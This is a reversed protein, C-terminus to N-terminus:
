RILHLLIIIVGLLIILIGLVWRHFSSHSDKTSGKKIITFVEAAIILIGAIISSM